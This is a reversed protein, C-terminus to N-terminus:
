VADGSAKLESILIDRLWHAIPVALGSLTISAAHTGATHVVLSAIGYRRELPGQRVDTHQVRARPITIERRWFIGRRIELGSEDIRWSAHRHAAATLVYIAWVMLGFIVFVGVLIFRHILNPPWAAFISIVSGVVALSLIMFGFIGWAIREVTISRPDLSQYKKPESQTSSAPQTNVLASPGQGGSDTPKIDDPPVVTGINTASM